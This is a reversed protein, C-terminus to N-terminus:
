RTTVSAFWAGCVGCLISTTCHPIIRGSPWAGGSGGITWSVVRLAPQAMEVAGDRHRARLRAGRGGLVEDADAVLGLEVEAAASIGVAEAEGRKPRTTSPISTIRARCARPSASWYRACGIRTRDTRRTARSLRGAASRERDIRRRILTAAM